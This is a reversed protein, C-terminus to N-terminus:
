ALYTHDDTQVSRKVQKHMTEATRRARAANGSDTGSSDVGRRELATVAVAAAVEPAIAVADAVAVAM